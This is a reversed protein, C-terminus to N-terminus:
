FESPPEMPNLLESPTADQGTVSHVDSDFRVKLIQLPTLVENAKENPEEPQRRKTGRQDTELIEDPFMFNGQRYFLGPTAGGRTPRMTKMESETLCRWNPHRPKIWDERAKQVSEAVIARVDPPAPPLDVDETVDGEGVKYAQNTLNILALPVNVQLVGCKDTHEPKFIVAHTQEPSRWLRFLSPLTTQAHEIVSGIEKGLVERLTCRLVADDVAKMLDGVTNINMKTLKSVATKGVGKLLKINVNPTEPLIEPARDNKSRINHVEFLTSKLLVVDWPAGAPKGESDVVWIGLRFKEGRVNSILLMLDSPLSFIGPSGPVAKLRCNEIGRQRKFIVREFGNPTWDNESSPKGGHEGTRFPGLLVVDLFLGEPLATLENTKASRMRVMVEQGCRARIHHTAANGRRAAHGDLPPGPKRAWYASAYPVGVPPQVSDNGTACTFKRCSCMLCSELNCQNNKCEHHWELVHQPPESTKAVRTAAQQPPAQPPAQQSATPPPAPQAEGNEGGKRGTGDRAQGNSDATETSGRINFDFPVEGFGLLTALDMQDALRAFMSKINDRIKLENARLAKACRYSMYAELASRPGTYWLKGAWRGTNTVPSCYAPTATATATPGSTGASRREGTESVGPAPPAGGINADAPLAGGVNASAPPIGGVSASSGKPEVTPTNELEADKTETPEKQAPPQDVKEKEM